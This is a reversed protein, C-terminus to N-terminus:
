LTAHLATSTTDRTTTEPEEPCEECHACLLQVRSHGRLYDRNGQYGIVRGNYILSANRHLSSFLIPLEPHQEKYKKVENYLYEHYEQFHPYSQRIRHERIIPELKEWDMMIGGSIWDSIFGVDLLGRKVMVGMGEKQLANMMFYAFADPNAEPGYKKWWDDYDNFEWTYNFDAWGKSYNVDSVMGYLQSFLQVQRTELQLQQARQSNRLILMYYIAALGVSIGAFM